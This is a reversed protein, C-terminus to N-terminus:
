AESSRCISLDLNSNILYASNTKGLCSLLPLDLSATLEGKLQLCNDQAVVLVAVIHRAAVDHRDSLITLLFCFNLQAWASLFHDFAKCLQLAIMHAFYIWASCSVWFAAGPPHDLDFIQTFM